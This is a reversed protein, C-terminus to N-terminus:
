PRELNGGPLELLARLGGLPSDELRVTGGGLEALDRVIALGLGSGPAAEDLRRGRAFAEDRRAPDLGPGDDDVRVALRDGELRTTVAVRGRAWKCANDMLNGVMEEFDQREVRAGHAPDAAVAIELGRDAHMREMAAALGKLSPAVSLLRPAGGSAAAARARALHIDVQRRALDLQQAFVAAVEPDALRETENGMVALPTKLAHALNGAQTRARELLEANRRILDNLDDVLPKVERPYDGEISDRGEEMGLGALAARLRDLPKLGLRVQLAAALGLGVALVGLAAALVTAFSRIADRLVGGDRAVVLRLIGPAGPLVVAREVAILPRGEPGELRHAHVEGDLIPDPAPRLAADWLSRSRSLAKGDAASVQWYLGSYPRRFAPDSSQRALIPLTGEAPWELAALLENLHIDLGARIQAEVHRHFLDVLLLGTLGLAALIWVLAGALLRAQLSSPRSM